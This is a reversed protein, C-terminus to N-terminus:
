PVDYSSVVYSWTEEAQESPFRQPPMKRDPNTDYPEPFHWHDSLILALSGCTIVLACLHLFPNTLRGSIMGVAWAICTLVIVLVNPLLLMNKKSTYKVKRTMVYPFRNNLKVDYLALLIYPWKGLWLL